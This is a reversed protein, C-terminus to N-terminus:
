GESLKKSCEYMLRDIYEKNHQILKMDDQNFARNFDVHSKVKGNVLGTPSRDFAVGEIGAWVAASSDWTDVYKLLSGLEAIENPGDMMGLFHIKKENNKAMWLLGRQQLEIMMNRRSLYQQLPNGDVGYANPVGLISIGIYDVLPSSAAWAFAEIYGDLDGIESQPVFFTGFGAEHFQPGFEKAAMITKFGDEGPYDPMVVYDAKVKEALSILKTGDFMPLGQRYLEYASNDLIYYNLPTKDAYYDTYSEDQEVLHALLLHNNYRETLKLPRLYQTPAIHCFETM